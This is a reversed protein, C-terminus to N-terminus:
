GDSGIRRKLFRSLGQPTVGLFRAIDKQRTRTLVEAHHQELFRYRPEIQGSTKACILEKDLLLTEMTKIRLYTGFAGGRLYEQRFFADPLSLGVVDTIAILEDAALERTWASTLNACIHGTEFFRAISTSGDPWTQESAMIGETLFLWQDAVRTQAQVTEGAAAGFDKLRDRIVTRDSESLAVGSRAVDRQLVDIAAM